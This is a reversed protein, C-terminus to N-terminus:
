FIEASISFCLLSKEEQSMDQFSLVGSCNWVGADTMVYSDPVTKLYTNQCLDTM